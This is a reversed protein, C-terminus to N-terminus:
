ASATMRLEFVFDRGSIIYHSIDMGIVRMHVIGISRWNLMFAHLAILIMILLDKVTNQLRNGLNGTVEVSKSTNATIM